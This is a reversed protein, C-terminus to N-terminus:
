KKVKKIDSSIQDKKICSFIFFIVGITFLISAHIILKYSLVNIASIAMKVFIPDQAQILSPINKIGFVLSFIVLGSLIFSISITRYFSKLSQKQLLYILGLVILIAVGLFILSLQYYQIYNRISDVGERQQSGEEIGYVKALDVINSEFFTLNRKELFEELYENSSVGAPLCPNDEDYPNQASSSCHPINTVGSLFFKRLKETDVQVTLNLVVTDSRLYSLFNSLLSNVIVKPGGEPIAIFTASQANNLNANILDYVGGEEFAEVYIEPYLISNITLGLPFLVLLFIVVASLLFVGVGRM